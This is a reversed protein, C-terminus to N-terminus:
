RPGQTGGCVRPYVSSAQATSYETTPEGACAPISRIDVVSARDQAPNGRVRPSLGGMCELWCRCCPTGGCVRPYVQHRYPAAIRVSPEGACAPISRTCRRGRHPQYLNGRVRPSLGQRNVTQAREVETGGCVRPYVEQGGGASLLRVPEGACAPISGTPIRRRPLVEHNGRVRPSLGRQYPKVVPNTLTGGCM